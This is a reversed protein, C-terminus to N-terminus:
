LRDGDAVAHEDKVLDGAEDDDAALYLMSATARRVSPRRASSPQDVEQLEGVGRVPAGPRVLVHFLLTSITFLDLCGEGLARVLEVLWEGRARRCM